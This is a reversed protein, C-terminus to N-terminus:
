RLKELVTASQSSVQVINQNVQNIEQTLSRVADVSKGLHEAVVSFGRGHIGAKAAEISANLALMQMNSMISNIRNVVSTSTDLSRGLDGQISGVVESIDARVTQANMELVQVMMRCTLPTFLMTPTGRLREKIRIAVQADGTSDFLFDPLVDRIALEADAFTPINRARAQELGPAAENADVVFKVQTVRNSGFFKLLGMGGRGAGIIGVTYVRGESWENM